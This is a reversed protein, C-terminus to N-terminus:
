EVIEVLDRTGKSCNGYRRPTKRPGVPSRLFDHRLILGWIRAIEYLRKGKRFASDDHKKKKRTCESSNLNKLFLKLM